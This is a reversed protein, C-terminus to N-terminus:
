NIYIYIYSIAMLWNIFNLASIDHMSNGVHLKSTYLDNVWLRKTCTCSDGPLTDADWLRSPETSAVPSAMARSKTSYIYIYLQVCICFRLERCPFSMHNLGKSVVCFGDIYIYIFISNCPHEIIYIYNMCPVPPGEPRAGPAPTAAASSPETKM